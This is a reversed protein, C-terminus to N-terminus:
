AEVAVVDCWPEDPTGGFQLWMGDPLTKLRDTGPLKLFPSVAAAADSRLCLDAAARLREPWEARTGLPTASWDFAAVLDAM